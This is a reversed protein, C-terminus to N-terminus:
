EGPGACLPKRCLVLYQGGLPLRHLHNELKRFPALFGPFFFLYDTRILKFANRTLLRRAEHPWVLVADADFPVRSMIYRTGLNWPNNEWFAFWGGPKLSEYILHVAADREDPVIHHFVGNCFALDIANKINALDSTFEVASNNWHSRAQELSKESPDYGVLSELDFNEFFFPTASGTGCGFDLARKTTVSQDKMLSSLWRMRGEAYFDKSAGTLKLGRQLAEDYNVAFSDFEPEQHKTEM